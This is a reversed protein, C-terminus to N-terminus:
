ERREEKYIDASRSYGRKEWYGPIDRDIVEFEVVWKADKYAYKGDVVIRLPYGNEMELDRGDMKYALLVNESLIFDLPLDTSYGDISKVMVFRGGGLIRLNKFLEKPYIGTFTAGLYSWGDVCHIDFQVNVSKMEAIERYSFEVPGDILGAIGVKYNNIDISKPKGFVSIPYLRGAPVQGKPMEFNERKM